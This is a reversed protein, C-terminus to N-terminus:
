RSEAPVIEDVLNEKFEQLWDPLDRLLESRLEEDDKNKNTNETEVSGHLPNGRSEESMIESREAASNETGIGTEQSSSTSQLLLHHLLPVRRCVLSLSHYTIGYIVVSQRAVKPSIHNKVAPGSTLIGM